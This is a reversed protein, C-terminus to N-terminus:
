CLESIDQNTKLRSEQGNNSNTNYTQCAALISIVLELLSLITLGLWVVSCTTARTYSNILRWSSLGPSRSGGCRSNGLTRPILRSDNRDPRLEKIEIPTSRDRWPAPVNRASPGGTSSLSGRRRSAARCPKLKSFINSVRETKSTP